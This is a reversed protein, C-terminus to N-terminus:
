CAFIFTWSDNVIVKMKSKYNELIINDKSLYSLSEDLFDGQHLFLPPSFGPSVKVLNIDKSGKLSKYDESAGEIWFYAFILNSCKEFLGNFAFSNAIYFFFDIFSFVNKFNSLDELIKIQHLNNIGLFINKSKNDKLFNYIKTYYDKEHDYVIPKLPIFYCDEFGAIISLDLEGGMYFPLTQEKLNLNERKEIFSKIKEFIGHKPKIVSINEAIIAKKEKLNIEQIYNDFNKYLITKIKKLLGPYIFIKDSDIPLNNEFSSVNFEFSYKDSKNFVNKLIELMEVTKMAEEVSIPHKFKYVENKYFISARLCKEKEEMFKISLDIKKKFPKFSKHQTGKLELEKSYLKYVNQNITPTKDCYIRVLSGKEAKFVSKNNAVIKRVPLKFPVSGSPSTFFMLVDHTAIKSEVKIVFSDKFVKKVVGILSGMHRPYKKEIISEDKDKFIYGLTRKRNFVYQTNLLLKKYTDENLNERNDIIERYFKVINFVYEPTKLRGEIKISSVGAEILDLVKKDTFLDKCSLFYSNENNFTYDNRCLQACKGRNGSRNLKLGSALCLGSYSYCLAGHIFVEFEINNHKDILNKIENISLERPLVIRKIDLDQAKMIGPSNHIAMQTSAHLTLSPFYKKVINITGFDQVILADIELEELFQLESILEEIESENIITNITVFIRKKNIISINKLKSLEEHSFNQASNRASFNKLGLYVADAGAKFAYVATTFNGAPALLEVLKKRM